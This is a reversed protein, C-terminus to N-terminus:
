ITFSNIYIDDKVVHCINPSNCDFSLIKKSSVVICLYTLWCVRPSLSLFPSSFDISLEETVPLTSNHWEFRSFLDSHMFFRSFVEESDRFSYQLCTGEKTTTTSPDDVFEVSFLELFVISYIYILQSWKWFALEGSRHLGYYTEQLLSAITVHYRYNKHCTVHYSVHYLMGFHVWRSYDVQISITVFRIM